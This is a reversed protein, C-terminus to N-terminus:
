EEPEPNDSKAMKAKKRDNSEAAERKKGKKQQKRKQRKAVKKAHKQEADAATINEGGTQQQLKQQRFLPLAVTQVYEELRGRVSGSATQFCASSKKNWPAKPMRRPTYVKHWAFNGLEQVMEESFESWLPLAVDRVRVTAVVVGTQGGEDDEPAPLDTGEKAAEVAEEEEKIATEENDSM